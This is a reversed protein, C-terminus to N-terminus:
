GTGPADNDDLVIRDRGKFKAIYMRKDASEILGSYNRAGDELREAVGFSATVPTGTPRKGLGHQRIRSLVRQADDKSASSLVILFEEGGWRILADDQRLCSKMNSAAQSLVNDGCDHGFEDNIQKFKDLDVFALSLSQDLITATRYKVELLDIGARRSLAKTLPDYTVRRVMISLFNLQSMGAIASAGTLLVLLWIPGILASWSVDGLLLKTAIMAGTVFVGMVFAEAATLPFVSLGALAIFPLFDYFSALILAAGVPEASALVMSTGFHFTAPVILMVALM